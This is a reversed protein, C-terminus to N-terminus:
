IQTTATTVSQVLSIIQNIETSKKAAIKIAPAPITQIQTIPVITQTHRFEVQQSTVIEVENTKTNM